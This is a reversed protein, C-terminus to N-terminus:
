WCASSSDAVVRRALRSLFVHVMEGDGDVGEGPAGPPIQIRLSFLKLIDDLGQILVVKVLIDFADVAGLNGHKSAIYEPCSCLIYLSFFTMYAVMGRLFSSYELFIDLLLQLLQLFVLGPHLFGHRQPPSQM